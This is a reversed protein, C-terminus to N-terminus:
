RPPNTEVRHMCYIVCAAVRVLGACRWRASHCMHGCVVFELAARAHSRSTNYPVLINLARCKEKRYGDVM